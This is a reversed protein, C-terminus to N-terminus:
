DLQLPVYLLHGSREVLLVVADGSKMAGLDARLQAVGNVVRRNIAYIVDGTDLAPGTYPAGAKRAAVVVGAPRRLEPMLDRVAKTIDLGVIGLQPVVNQVPDVNDALADLEGGSEEETVVPLDLQEAGRQVRITIKTGPTARFVRAELQHLSSVPRGNMAVVIDDVQLGGHAAAGDPELDSIVVGHDTELDLGEAMEPTV